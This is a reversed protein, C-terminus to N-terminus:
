PSTGSRAAPAAPAPLPTVSAPRLAASGAFARADAESQRLKDMQAVAATDPQAQALDEAGLGRIGATTAAQTPRNGGFLNTVGRLAGGVANAAGGSDASATTTAPGLDFLHLWGTAGAATRVQVWPGQREGGRTVPSQAPLAALSRGSDAPTARLETARRTVAAEQAWATPLLLATLALVRLVTRIM